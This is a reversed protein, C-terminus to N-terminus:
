QPTSPHSCLCLARNLSRDLSYDRRVVWVSIIEDGDKIRVEFEEDAEGVNAAEGHLWKDDEEQSIELQRVGAWFLDM